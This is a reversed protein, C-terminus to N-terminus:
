GAFALELGKAALGVLPLGQTEEESFWRCCDTTGEAEFRLEGTYDVVDYLIRVGHFAVAETDDFIADVELVQGPLVRLGTEEYVERIM